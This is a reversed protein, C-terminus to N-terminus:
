SSSGKLLNGYDSLSFVRGTKIVSRRQSDALDLFAVTRASAEKPNDGLSEFGCVIEDFRREDDIRLDMILRAQQYDFGEAILDNIQEDYVETASFGTPRREPQEVSSGNRIRTEHQAAPMCGDLTECGNFRKETM